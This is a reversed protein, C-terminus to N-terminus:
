FRCYRYVTETLSGTHPAWAVQHVAYPTESPFSTWRILQYCNVVAWHQAHDDCTYKQAGQQRRLKPLQSPAALDESGSGPAWEHPHTYTGRPHLPQSYERLHFPSWPEQEWQSKWALAPPLSVCAWIRIQWKWAVAWALSLWKEARGMLGTASHQWSFSLFPACSSELCM